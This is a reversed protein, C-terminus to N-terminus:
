VAERAKDIARSIRESWGSMYDEIAVCLGDPDDGLLDTLEQIAEIDNPDIVPKCVCPKSDRPRLGDFMADAAGCGHQHFANVWQQWSGIEADHFEYTDHPEGCHRCRIDM